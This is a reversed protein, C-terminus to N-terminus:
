HTLASSRCTTLPQQRPYLSAFTINTLGIDVTTNLEDPQKTWHTGKYGKEYFYPTGNFILRQGTRLKGLERFPMSYDVWLHSSVPNGQPDCINKLLLTQIQGPVQYRYKKWGTKSFTGVYMQTPNNFLAVRM